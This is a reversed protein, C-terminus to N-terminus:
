RMSPPGGPGGKGSVMEQSYIGAKAYWKDNKYSRIDFQGSVTEDDITVSLKGTSTVQVDYSFEEGLKFPRSFSPRLEKGNLKPRHQVNIKFTDASGALRAVQLKFPPHNSEGHFQGIIAKGSAPLSDVTLTASLQHVPASDLSWNAEDDDGNPLTERLESRPYTSNKKTSKIGDGSSPAFFTISGDANRIFWPSAYTQLDETQIIEADVPITLNWHSLDIM